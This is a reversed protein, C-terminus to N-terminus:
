FRDWREAKVFGYRNPRNLIKEILEKKMKKPMKLALGTRELAVNEARHEAAWELIYRYDERSLDTDMLNLTDLGVTEAGSVFRIIGAREAANKSNLRPETSKIDTLMYLRTEELECVLAEVIVIKINQRDLTPKGFLGDNKLTQLAALLLTRRRVSTRFIYKLDEPHLKQWGVKNFELILTPDSILEEHREFFRVLADFNKERMREKKIEQVPKEKREFKPDERMLREFWERLKGARLQIQQQKSDQKGDGSKFAEAM